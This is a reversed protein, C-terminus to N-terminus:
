LLTRQGKDHDTVETHMLLRLPAVGEFRTQLDSMAPVRSARGCLLWGWIPSVVAGVGQEVTM